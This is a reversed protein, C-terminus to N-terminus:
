TLIKKWLEKAKEILTHSSNLRLYKTDLDSTRVRDLADADKLISILKRNPNKKFRSDAISHCSILDLTKEDLIEMTKKASEKGHKADSKHNTRGIDHCIAAIQLRIMDDESVNEKEAILTVICAVRIAHKCSHDNM